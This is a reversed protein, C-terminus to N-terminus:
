VPRGAVSAWSDELLVMVVQRAYDELSNIALETILWSPVQYLCIANELREEWESLSMASGNFKNVLALFKELPEEM